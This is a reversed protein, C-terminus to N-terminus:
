RRRAADEEDMMEYLQASNSLDIGPRLEMDHSSVPLVFEKPAPAQEQRVLAERILEEVTQSFSANREVAIRKVRSLLMDDITLTTRM